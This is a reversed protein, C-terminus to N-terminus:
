AQELSSCSVATCGIICCTAPCLEVGGGEQRKDPLFGDENDLFINPGILTNNDCRSAAKHHCSEL